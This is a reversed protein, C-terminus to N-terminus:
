PTRGTALSRRDGSPSSFFKLGDASAAELAAQVTGPTLFLLQAIERVGRGSTALDVIRREITTSRRHVDRGSGDARGRRALAARGRHALAARARHAIGVAGRDLATDLAAQLLEVAEDDPLQARSGLMCRARALEVAAITPTLVEVAERADDLGADGRLHGLRCLATGLYSPAGWRRLRAVEEEMLTLAEDTRGMRDLAIAATTLWPNWVPNRVPVPSPIADLTALAEAPRREVALLRALAHQLLRGGEGTTPGALAEDAVRRAAAVDGRDLHCGIQFSRTYPEGIGSGGWMRDQDLAATFCALAEDLEGRRWRWYGEWVNVSLAMFLSGRAHAQARARPWFDGLDDDALTRVNAAVVWFLGNDVAWLRDGDLSFRALAIARQRDVGDAMAEFALNAALMRAGLGEGAPDGPETRRWESPELGHMYGSTREIALLAQRHDAFEPPVARGADRAFRTAVGPPSAFVETRAIAVAIDARDEPDQHLAYAQLLHETSAAGDILSELLGLETLVHCRLEGTPGEELARRLLTVASDSAGRDAATRAAARLVQVTGEDGRVPAVLLHAAVQEDSAGSARLLRAAREHMLAREAAPLDRYVAERVLPHAFALPQEDKVIEARALRALAAATGPESLEALAAVVPLPAGDGLVAASRAVAPAAGALRRLRMLVMSSVARSGVAVVMDAHAADPRVGDAEMARLLQRLLLPNGSTTRHCALAFLPSVPEGLRRGVLEAVAAQSLAEPRVVVAAPELSLENLLEEDAHQEGTRVTGVVLVPVAELRRVLYALWRLSASDCWQVDDVALLVPGSSTLNVALWYLGHLVAFSGEPSEGPSLDFVTRASSAAGTLLEERREASALLPDFLQRVAGFGFAKELQSGRATLVRVSREAAMRRAENLLRTKGIGAPGEILLLRPEGAVLDDLASRVAALERERDLLDDPLPRPEPAAPEPARARQPPVTLAPSQALVQQELERLAPGPDVGLEDALTRRARRLAALADAQRHARYLALALLRWREERLPEEAVMAELDAVVMAARGLALQAAMLRDRAEARLETLRTIEPEAWPEDVWEALPPGRWLALAESLLAVAQQAEVAAGARQLLREFRWVDVADPPLRVAYGRGQSVIVGSRTRAASGPQLRRRLHSVYAQVAGAPDAPAREGWVYETLRDVPVVEGRALVLVALVARQRPGGLDLARGDLWAACPGLLSIRLQGTGEM